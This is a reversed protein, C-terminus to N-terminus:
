IILPAPLSKRKPLLREPAVFFMMGDSQNQIQPDIGLGGDRPTRLRRRGAFTIFWERRIDPDCLRFGDILNKVLEDREWDEVLSASARRNYNCPRRIAQRV